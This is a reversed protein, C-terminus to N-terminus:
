DLDRNFERGAREIKKLLRLAKDVGLYASQFIKIEKGDVPLTFLSALVFKGIVVDEYLLDNVLRTAWAYVLHAAGLYHGIM